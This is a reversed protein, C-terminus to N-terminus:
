NDIIRFDEDKRQMALDFGSAGNVNKRGPVLVIIREIPEYIKIKRGRQSWKTGSVRILDVELLSDLNYKLTNLGLSLKEAIEGASMNGTELLQLIKISNANSLAQVLKRSDESIFLVKLNKEPNDEKWM